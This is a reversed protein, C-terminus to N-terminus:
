HCCRSDLNVLEGTKASGSPNFRSREFNLMRIAEARDEAEGGLLGRRTTEARLAEVRTPGGEGVRGMSSEHSKRWARDLWLM